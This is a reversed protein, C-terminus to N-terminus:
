KKNKFVFLKSFVYNLIIVFVSGVAKVLYENFQLMTRFVFFFASNLLISVVRLGAFSLFMGVIKSFSRTDDKFVFIKNTVFAFTMAIIQCLLQSLDESPLKFVDNLIFFAVFDVVTTLVGFFLYSITERYKKLLEKIKKIM